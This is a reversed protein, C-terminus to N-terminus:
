AGFHANAWLASRFQGQTASLITFSSLAGSSTMYLIAVAGRGTDYLPAGVAVEEVNDDDLFGVTALSAGFFMDEGSTLGADGPTITAVLRMTDGSRPVRAIYIVGGGSTRPAGIALGRRSTAHWNSSYPETEVFSLQSLVCVAAGFDDQSTPAASTLTESSIWAVTKATRTPSLLILALAAFGTHSSAGVVIDDYGDGDLDGIAAISSGLGSAVADSSQNLSGSAPGLTQIAKVAGTALSDMNIQQVCGFGTGIAGGSNGAQCQFHGVLLNPTGDGELDGLGTVSVGSSYDSSLVSVDYPYPLNVKTFSQVARSSSVFGIYVNTGDGQKPTLGLYGKALRRVTRHWNEGIASGFASSFYSSMGLIGETDLSLIFLSIRSTFAVDPIGDNDIDGIGVMSLGGRDDNSLSFFPDAILDFPVAVVHATSNLEILYAHGKGSISPQGIGITPNGDNDRDGIYAVSTGWDSLLHSTFLAGLAMNVQAAISERTLEVVSAASGDHRLFVVFVVNISSGIILDPVGDLNLDPLGM